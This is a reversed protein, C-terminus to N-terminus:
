ERKMATIVNSLTVNLFEKGKLFFICVKGLLVSLSLNERANKLIRPNASLQIRFRQVLDEGEPGRKGALSCKLIDM